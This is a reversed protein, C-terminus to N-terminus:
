GVGSLGPGSHTGTPACDPGARPYGYGCGVAPAGAPSAPGSRPERESDDGCAGVVAMLLAAFALLVGLRRNM